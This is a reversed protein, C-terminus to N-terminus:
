HTLFEDLNLIVNAVVTLAALESHQKADIKSSYNGLIATAQDPAKSFTALSQSYFEVLVETQKPNAPHLLATELGLKIRLEPATQELMKVALAQAAEFFAEDNLTM